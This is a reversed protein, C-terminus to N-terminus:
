INLNLEVFQNGHMVALVQTSTAEGSRLKLNERVTMTKNPAVTTSSAKKSGDYDCSGDAHRPWIIKSFDCKNTQILKEYQEAVSKDILILTFVLQDTDLYFNLYDGDQIIKYKIVKQEFLKELENDQYSTTKINTDELECVITYGDTTKEIKKVFYYEDDEKDYPQDCFCSVLCNAIKRLYKKPIGSDEYKYLDLM